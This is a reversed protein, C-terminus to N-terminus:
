QNGHIISFEFIKINSGIHSAPKNAGEFLLHLSCLINMFHVIKICLPWCLTLGESRLCAAVRVAITARILPM